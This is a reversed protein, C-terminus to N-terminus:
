RNIKIITNDEIYTRVLFVVGNVIDIKRKGNEKKELLECVKNIKKYFLYFPLEETDKNYLFVNTFAEEIDSINLINCFLKQTQEKTYGEILLYM